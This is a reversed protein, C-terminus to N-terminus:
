TGTQEDFADQAHDFCMEFDIRQREAFHMLDTLLNVMVLSSIDYTDVFDGLAYRDFLKEAREARSFNTKDM